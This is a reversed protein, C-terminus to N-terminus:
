STSLIKLDNLLISRHRNCNPVSAEVSDKVELMKNLLVSPSCGFCESRPNQGLRQLFAKKEHSKRTNIM